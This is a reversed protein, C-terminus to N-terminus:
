QTEECVSRHRGKKRGLSRVLDPVAHGRPDLADSEFDRAHRQAKPATCAHPGISTNMRLM